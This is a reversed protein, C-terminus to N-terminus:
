SKEYSGAQKLHDSVSLLSADRPFSHEITATGYPGVGNIILHVTSNDTTGKVFSKLRLPIEQFDYLEPRVSQYSANHDMPESVGSKPHGQSQVLRKVNALRAEHDINEADLPRPPNSGVRDKLCAREAAASTQIPGPFQTPSGVTISKTKPQTAKSRDEKQSRPSDRSFSDLWSAFGPFSQIDPPSIGNHLSGNQDDRSTIPANPIPGGAQNTKRLRVLSSEGFSQPASTTQIDTELARSIPSDAQHKVQTPAGLDGLDTDTASEAKRMASTFKILQLKTTEMALYSRTCAALINVKQYESMGIAELGKPVNFRFYKDNNVLTPYGRHFGEATKETELAIRILTKTVKLVSPGFSSHARLGTGLSVVCGINQVYLVEPWIDRAEALLENVPNNFGTAGDM